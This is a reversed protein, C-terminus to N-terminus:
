NLYTDIDAHSFEFGLELLKKPYVNQGDLLLTAMEGLMLKLMFAPIMFVTPRKLFKGLTQTFKLNNIANPATLNYVQRNELEYSMNQHIIFLVAKVWDPTSIWSMMQLGNGLKAGLGLNFQPLLRKLMGKGTKDLVVGTRIIATKINATNALTEWKTCLENSFDNCIPTDTETLQRNDNTSQIGYYGIASGSIFLKPKHHAIHIFDLIKQTPILRSDLLEQKRANTWRKDAIGAGALNIIIDITLDPTLDEYTLVTVKKNPTFHKRSVWFLYNDPNKLLEDTLANGLFGSGGTILVNM